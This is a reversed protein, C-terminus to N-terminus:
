GVARSLQIPTIEVDILKQSGHACNIEYYINENENKRRKNETVIKQKSSCSENVLRSRSKM